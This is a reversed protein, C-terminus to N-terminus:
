AAVPPATAMAPGAQHQSGGGVGEDERRVRSSSSCLVVLHSPVGVIGHCGRAVDKRGVDCVISPAGVARRDERLLEPQADLGQGRAVGDLVEPGRESRGTVVVM